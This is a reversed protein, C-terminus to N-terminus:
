RPSRSSACRACGRSAPAARGRASPPRRRQARGSRRQTAPPKRRYSPRLDGVPRPPSPLEPRNRESRRRFDRDSVPPRGDTSTGCIESTGRHPHFNLGTGGTDGVSAGTPSRRAETPLFAAFRRGAAAPISNQAPEARIESPVRPRLDARKRRYFHRLDGVPWPPSPTEPGTRGFRRRFDRDSVPPRGDTFPGCIESPGRHPHHNLGTGAPDGVPASPLAAATVRRDTGDRTM